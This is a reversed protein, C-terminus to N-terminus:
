PFRLVVSTSGAPVDKATAEPSPPGLAARGYRYGPAPETRRARLDLRAGQPVVELRFRGEADTLAAEVAPELEGTASVLAHEVPDGNAALVFGEVFDRASLALLVGSAGAPVESAVAPALPLAGAPLPDPPFAVLTYRGPALGGLEFSGDARTPAHVRRLLRVSVRAGALPEGAPGVVRGTISSGSPLELRLDERREGPELAIAISRAPWGAAVLTLDYSGGALDTFVFRGRPDSAVAWDGLYGVPLAEAAGSFRTRDANWGKLGLRAGPAPKGDAGVVVGGLSAPRSLRLDGLEVLDLEAEAAPFDYIRTSLGEKRVILAHRLDRRLPQLEFRGDARTRSAIWDLRSLGPEGGTAVAAVYADEVDEGDPGLVRGSARFGPWLEFDVEATGELLGATKESRGYGAARVQVTPEFRTAVGDIRFAGSADTRVTKHLFSWSSVEAGAIPAGTRADSVHGAIAMGAELEVDHRLALGEELLLEEYRSPAEREPIVLLGVAGTALDDLRYGGTADTRTESELDGGDGHMARVLAGAVPQGDAARTVRGYVVGAALLVITVDEGAYRGRVFQTGFGAANVRLDAPREPEVELSFAGQADTIASALVRHEKAYDFDHLQLGGEAYLVVEIRAGAVAIGHTDIVTGRLLHSAEPLAPPAAPAPPAVAARSRASSAESPQAGEGTPQAIRVPEAAAAPSEQPALSIPHRVLQVVVLALAVLCAAAVKAKASVLVVGTIAVPEAVPRRLGSWALLWAGHGGNRRALRARLRELGRALRSQVTRVPVDLRRAIERPPLGEFYRLLIASRFPEELGVVAEVLERHLEARECLEAASPVAEARAALEERSRRRAGTRLGRWAFNRLTRALWPGAPRGPAPGHELAALWTAQEADQAAHPDRLLRRALQRVEAAHALLEEADRDLVKEV